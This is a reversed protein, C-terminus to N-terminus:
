HVWGANDRGKEDLTASVRTVYDVIQGCNTNTFKIQQNKICFKAVIISTM